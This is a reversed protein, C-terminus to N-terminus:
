VGAAGDVVGNGQTTIEWPKVATFSIYRSLYASAMVEEPWKEASTYSWRPKPAESM